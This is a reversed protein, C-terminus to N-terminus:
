RRRDKSDPRGLRSGGWKSRAQLRRAEEQEEEEEDEEEMLLMLLLEDDDDDDDDDNDDDFGNDEGDDSSTDEEGEEGLGSWYEADHCLIALIRTIRCRTTSLVLNVVDVDTSVVSTACRIHQEHVRTSISM